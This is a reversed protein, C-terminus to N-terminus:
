ICDVAAAQGIPSARYFAHAQDLQFENMIADLGGKVHEAVFRPAGVVRDARTAAGARRDIM